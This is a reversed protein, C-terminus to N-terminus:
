IDGTNPNTGDGFNNTAIHIHFMYAHIKEFFVYLLYKQQSSVVSLLKELIRKKVQIIEFERM